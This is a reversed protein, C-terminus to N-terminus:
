LSSFAEKGKKKKKGSAKSKGSSSPKEKKGRKERIPLLNEKKRKRGEERADKRKARGGGGKENQSRNFSKGGKGKKKEGSCCIKRREERRKEGEVPKELGRKGRPTYIIEGKKGKPPVCIKKGEKRGRKEWLCFRGGKGKGGRKLAAPTTGGKEKKKKKGLGKGHRGKLITEGGGHNFTYKGGGRGKKGRSRNCGRKGLCTISRKKGRKKEGRPNSPDRRKKKEEGTV